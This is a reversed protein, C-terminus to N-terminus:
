VELIEHYTGLCQLLGGVGYILRVNGAVSEDDRMWMWMSLCALLVVAGVSMSVVGRGESIM